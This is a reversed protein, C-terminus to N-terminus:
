HSKETDRNGVFQQLYLVLKLCKNKREQHSAVEKEEEKELCFIIPQITYLGVM